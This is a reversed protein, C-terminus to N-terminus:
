GNKRRKLAIDSIGRVVREKSGVERTGGKNIHGGQSGTGAVSGIYLRLGVLVDPPGRASLLRM